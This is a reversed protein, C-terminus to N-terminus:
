SDGRHKECAHTWWCDGTEEDYAEDVLDVAGACTADASDCHAGCCDSSPFLMDKIIERVNATATKPLRPWAPHPVAVFPTGYDKVVPVLEQAVKGCLVVLAPKIRKMRSHMLMCDAAFTARSRSGVSLSANVVEYEIGDPIMERLRKGTQSRWLLRKWVRDSHQDEREGDKAGRRWANQLVFLVPRM